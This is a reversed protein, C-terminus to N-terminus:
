GRSGVRKGIPHRFCRTRLRLKRALSRITADCAIHHGVVGFCWCADAAKFDFLPQSHTCEATDVARVIRLKITFYRELYRVRMKQGLSMALTEQALSARRCLQAMRM